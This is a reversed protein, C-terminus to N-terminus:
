WMHTVMNHNGLWQLMSVNFVYHEFIYQLFILIPLLVAAGLVKSQFSQKSSKHNFFAMGAGVGVVGGVVVLGVLTSEAVRMRHQVASRKDWGMLLFSGLNIMVLM